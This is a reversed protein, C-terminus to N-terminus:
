NVMWQGDHWEGRPIIRGVYGTKVADYGHRKMFQYAEDMRREYNTVSSSTEHHMILKVGKSAAYAHLEEVNFDPYPTVFDFVEEKYNGFWDEWGVNWGEVLVGQFGHRAAFDIYRKTNATTAGHKGNPKLSNWDTEGLRVTVNDAYNWTAKGVHMEWWIGVYKMPRIWSVDALKSPENLNLILRSALIDAARDSVVVTRWPTRAPAQLYAKNGIPDPALASTLAHAPKDVALLMAPYDVLAAEHINVYLGDDTKMMLPTQVLNASFFTRTSIEQSQKGREADVESLRTTSYFYENTDFDGPIWFAKHDGALRFETREDTVTFHRLAEQGPFEYRFGLGDDFLRFRVVVTTKQAGAAAARQELTVALERYNNRVRREEGWVTEWTEDKATEKVDAAVLASTLPPRDKLVLGLKSRRIVPRGAFSLEYTPEGDATLAFTLSLRGNPSKLDQAAAGSAALILFLLPLAGTLFRSDFM